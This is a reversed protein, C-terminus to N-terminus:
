PGIGFLTGIAGMALLSWLLLYLAELPWLGGGRDIGRDFLWAVGFPIALMWLLNWGFRFNLADVTLMAVGLLATVAAVLAFPRVAAVM